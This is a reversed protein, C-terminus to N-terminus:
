GIGDIAATLHELRLVSDPPKGGAPVLGLSVLSTWRAFFTSRLFRIDICPPQRQAASVLEEATFGPFHHQAHVIAGRLDAHIMAEARRMARIAAQIVKPRSRLLSATAVLVTDPFPRGWLESGDSLERGSARLRSAHPEAVTIAAFERNEFAAVADELDDCYRVDIENMTLSAAKLADHLLVELPDGRFTGVVRGRLARIEGIEAHAVLAIGMLGSGAVVVPPDDQALDLFPQIFAATGLDARGQRLADSTSSMDTFVPVEVDLGERDFLGAGKAVFLPLNSLSCGHTLLLRETV